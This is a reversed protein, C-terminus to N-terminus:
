DSQKEKKIAYRVFYYSSAAFFVTIVYLQNDYLVATISSLVLIIMVVATIDEFKFRIQAVEFSSGYGMRYLLWIGPIIVAATAFQLVYGNSLSDKVADISGLLIIALLSQVIGFTVYGAVTIIVSFLM